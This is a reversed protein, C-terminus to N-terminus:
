TKQEKKLWMGFLSNPEWDVVPVNKPSDHGINNRIRSYFYVYM